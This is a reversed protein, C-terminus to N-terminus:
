NPPNASQAPALPPCLLLVAQRLAGVNWVTVGNIRHPQPLTGGHVWRWVTAPSIGFLAAVVPLRVHASAPLEDFARLAGQDIRNMARFSM